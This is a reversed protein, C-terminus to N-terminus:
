SQCVIGNKLPSKLITFPLAPVNYIIVYSITFYSVDGGFVTAIFVAVAADFCVFMSNKM